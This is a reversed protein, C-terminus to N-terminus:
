GVRGGVGGGTVSVAEKDEDVKAGSGGSANMGMDVLSRPTRSCRHRSDVLTYSNGSDGTAKISTDTIQACCEGSAAQDPVLGDTRAHLRLLPLLLAGLRVEDDLSSLALLLQLTLPILQHTHLPSVGCAGRRKVCARMM